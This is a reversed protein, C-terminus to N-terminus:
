DTQGDMHKEAHKKNGDRRTQKSNGYQQNETSWFQRAKMCIDIIKYSVLTSSGEIQKIKRCGSMKGDETRKQVTDYISM